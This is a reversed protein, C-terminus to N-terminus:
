LAQWNNAGTPFATAGISTTPAAFSANIDGAPSKVMIATSDFASGYWKSGQTHMTTMAFATSQFQVGLRVGKSTKGITAGVPANAQLTRGTEATTALLATGATVAFASGSFVMSLLLSFAIIKKM